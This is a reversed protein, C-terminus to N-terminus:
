NVAFYFDGTLSSNEWPTQKNGSEGMVGSRVRKFVDEIKRGPIVMERLLHKTFLGNRGDGDAATMGPATAFSIFAGAGASITALGGKASRTKGQFPNDRCADLILLSMRVKDPTLRDLVSSNLDIAEEALETDNQVKADVPILYNTGNAQIGHGAFYVLAVANPDLKQAFQRLALQFQQRTANNVRVVDFGM